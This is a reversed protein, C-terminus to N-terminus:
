AAEYTGTLTLQDGTTWTMPVTATIGQSAGYTGAANVLIPRVTTSSNLRVLITYDATGVDIAKGVGIESFTVIYGTTNATVPLTFTGVTGVTSTTGLTFSITFSVTKGIQIYRAVLTGNGLTINTLTPTWDQWVWTTGTGALIREPTVAGDELKTSDVSEDTLKDGDIDGASIALKAYDISGNAFNNGDLNGNVQASLAIWLDRLHKAKIETGDNPPTYSALGM